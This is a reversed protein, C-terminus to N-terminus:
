ASLCRGPCPIKGAAHTGLAATGTQLRCVMRHILVLAEKSRSLAPVQLSYGLKGGQDQFVQVLVDPYGEKLWPGPEWAPGHCPRPEESAPTEFARSSKVQTPFYPRGCTSWGYQM